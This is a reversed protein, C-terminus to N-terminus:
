KFVINPTSKVLRIFIIERNLANELEIFTDDINCTYIKNKPKFNRYSKHCQSIKILMMKNM